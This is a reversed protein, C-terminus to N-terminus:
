ERGGAARLAQSASLYGSLEDRCEDVSRTSTGGSSICERISSIRDQIFSLPTEDYYDLANPNAGWVLLLEVMAGSKAVHLASGDMPIDSNLAHVNAGAELLATASSILDFFVAYWLPPGSGGDVVKNPDAGANILVSILQDSESPSRRESLVARNLPTYWHPSAGAQNVDVGADIMILILQMRENSSLDPIRIVESLPTFTSGAQNLDAGANILVEAAQVKGNRIARNLVTDDVFQDARANVNAGANVLERVIAASVTNPDFELAIHLPTLGNPWQANVDVGADLCHAIDIASLPQDYFEPTHWNSCSVRETQEDSPPTSQNDGAVIDEFDASGAVASGAQPAEISRESSGVEGDLFNYNVSWDSFQPRVGNFALLLITESYTQGPRTPMGAGSQQIHGSTSTWQVPIYVYDGELEYRETWNTCPPWQSEIGYFAVLHDLDRGSGNYVSFELEWLHLPQGQNVRLEEYRDQENEENVNCTAANGQLLRVTGRLSVGDDTTLLQQADASAASALALMAYLRAPKSM